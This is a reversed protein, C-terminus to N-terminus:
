KDYEEREKEEKEKAWDERIIGVGHYLISQVDVDHVEFIGLKPAQMWEDQNQMIGKEDYVAEVQRSLIEEVKPDIKACMAYVAEEEDRGMMCFPKDALVIIPQIKGNIERVLGAYNAMPAKSEELLRYNEPVVLVGTRLAIIKSM